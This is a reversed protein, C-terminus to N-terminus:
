MPDCSVRGLLNPDLKAGSFGESKWELGLTTWVEMCMVNEWICMNDWTMLIGCDIVVWTDNGPESAWFAYVLWKDLRQGGEEDVKMQVQSSGKWLLGSKVSIEWHLRTKKDKNHLYESPNTILAELFHSPLKGVAEQCFLTHTSPLTKFDLTTQNKARRQLCNSWLWNCLKWIKPSCSFWYFSTTYLQMSCNCGTKWLREYYRYKHSLFMCISMTSMKHM